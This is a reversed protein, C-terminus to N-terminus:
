IQVTLVVAVVVVVIILEVLALLGWIIVLRCAIDLFSFPVSFSLLASFLRPYTFDFNHNPRNTAWQPARNSNNNNSGPHPLTRGHIWLRIAQKLSKDNLGDKFFFYLFSPLIRICALWLSGPRNQLRSIPALVRLKLIKSISMFM